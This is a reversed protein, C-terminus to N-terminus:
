RGSVSPVFRGAVGAASASKWRAARMRSTKKRAAALRRRDLM